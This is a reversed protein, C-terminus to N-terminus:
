TQDYTSDPDDTSMIGDYTLSDTVGINGAGEFKLRVRKGLRIEDGTQLLIADGSLQVDNIFTGYTPTKSVGTEDSAEVEELYLGDKKSVIEAHHRSVPKDKPFSIDNDASRGLTTVSQTIEFRHGVMTADDSAEVILMGLADPSLEWDDITREEGPRRPTVEAASQKGALSEVQELRRRRIAFFAVFAITVLLLGGLGLGIPLAVNNPAAASETEAEQVPSEPAANVNVTITEKALESNNAGYVIATLDLVGVPYNSLDLQYEYPITDDTGIVKGGAEFAV